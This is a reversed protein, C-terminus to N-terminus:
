VPDKGKGGRKRRFSRYDLYCQHRKLFQMMESYRNEPIRLLSFARSYIGNSDELARGLISQVLSAAFRHEQLPTKVCSEFDGKGELIRRYIEEALDPDPACSSGSERRAEPPLDEVTLVNRFTAYYSSSVINKLERVNGPYGYRRLMEGAEPSFRKSRGREGEELQDLFYEVLLSIDERRDRLPPVRIEMSKLRYFLDDRFRGNKTEELLDKNTAAIIQVDIKRPVTEGLRRVEREQIVRLFKPQINLPLNSMEDLFVIGGNASELLGPRNEAAGTFSGKRYGFLEAEALSDSLTGCDIAIFKGEKRRGTRHIARAVLEKGTGSEGTILIDLPSAAALGIRDRLREMVASRGIIEAYPDRAQHLYRELEAKEDVLRQHALANDVAIAALNCFAAFLSIASESLGGAPSSHDAYLIGLVRDGLRLPAVLIKGPLGSLSVKRGLFRADAQANGSVIPRGERLVEMLFDREVFAAASLSEGRDNRGRALQLNGTFDDRLFFLAREAKVALLLQDLVAELLPGLERISHVTASVRLLIRAKEDDRLEAMAVRAPERQDPGSEIVRSLEAKARSREFASCYAPLMESPVRDEAKCLLEYAKQAHERCKDREPFSAFIRSLELHARWGTESQPSSEPMQCAQELREIAAAANGAAARRAGETEVGPFQRAPSLILGQLLYGHGLLSAAQMVRALRSARKVYFAAKAPERDRLLMEGIHLEIVCMQYPWRKAKVRKDLAMMERLARLTNGQEFLIRARLAEALEREYFPPKRGKGACLKDVYELASDFRGLAFNLIASVYLVHGGTYIVQNLRADRNLKEVVPWAGRYDGSALLVEALIANFAYSIAPSNAGEAAGAAREATNLAESNRGMRSLCEALNGLAQSKLVVSRSKDSLLVANAHKELALPFRGFAQLIIGLMSYASCALHSENAASLIAAARESSSRAERLNCAIRRMSADLSEIRGELAAANQKPCYKRAKELCASGRGSRSQLIEAFALEAWLMSRTANSEGPAGKGFLNLGRRCCRGLMRLDGLHQYSLALQMYMRARREAGVSRCRSIEAKLLAISRKPLGLALMTDSAAVAAACLQTEALGRRKELMYEFCRLAREHAFESRAQEAARWAYRVATEGADGEMYHLALEQVYGDGGSRRELAQAIRRHMKRRAKKDLTGLIVEAILSHTFGVTEESGRVGTRVMQRHGLELLADGAVSDGQPILSFLLLRSVESRFLSLWHAMERAPGSLRELRRMLVAGVSEPVDLDQVKDEVFRWRGPERFLLGQEVMHKLMEEIFFPNGGVSRYTWGGLTGSLRSDGTMGEILREVNEKELPELLLNEGREQRVVSDMVRAMSANIEDGSRLSVCMLVSHAQIDSSLYDLVASTAEDALHFNHLLLLTPRAKMRRILERTLLDRYQGTAYEASPEFFETEAARSLERFQFIAKGEAPSSNELIQRYPGYSGAAGAECSGEAIQWDELLAWNRLEELIRTKGSGAEGAIFVTWGRSCERVRVAAEQLFSMERDRGVFRSAGFHSELEKLDAPPAAHGSFEQIGRLVEGASSPRRSPDKDLLSRVLPAIRKGGQMRELPRLDVSGQLHKQILFEPDEDDFPLRRTLLQYVMVGLSYFDSRRDAPGGLLTEPAMYALRRSGFEETGDHAQRGIGFDTLKLRGGGEGANSLIANRPNLNGHVFGRTHLYQMAKAAELIWVMTEGPDMGETSAHLDKGQVWERVLFLGRPREMIGFDTVPVLNPHRLRLLLTLDGSPLCPQGGACPRSDFLRLAVRAGGNKVDACLYATRAECANLPMEVRYRNGVISGAHFQSQEDIM